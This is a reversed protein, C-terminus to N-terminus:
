TNLAARLRIEFDDTMDGVRIFTCRCNKVVVGNCTYLGYIDDTLDYVDGAYDFSNIHTVLWPTLKWGEIRSDDLSVDGTFRSLFERSFKTHATGGEILTKDFGPNDWPITALSHIGSHGDCGRLNSFKVDLFRMVSSATADFGSISQLLTSEVDFLGSPDVFRLTPQNRHQFMAAEMDRGLLGYANVINVQEHISVGDGHFDEPSVPMTATPVGSSHKAAGYINEIISERQYYDPNISQMIRDPNASGIINFGERVFKAAIFGDTTFVPHNETVTIRRGNAFIFEIVRGKYFGKFISSPLASSVFQGPLICHPHQTGAAVWWEARKRGYNTKGPWIATYEENNVYISDGGTTPAEELLVFLKDNVKSACFPCAGGGSIGQMFIPADSSGNEKLEGMLYGNNFNTATETEAIRRWDRNMVDFEEFLRDELEKSTIRDSYGQMIVKVINKRAKETVDQILDGTMMEAADVIYQFQKDQTLGRMYEPLGAESFSTSIRASPEMSQLVKGLAIAQKTLSEESGGYIAGFARSLDKKIIDWEKKTLYKGTKPNLFIKGNLKFLTEAKGLDARVWTSLIQSYLSFLNHKVDAHILDALEQLATYPTPESVSHDHSDIRISRNTAKSLVKLVTAIKHETNVELNKVTLLLTKGM